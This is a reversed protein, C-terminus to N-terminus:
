FIDRCGFRNGPHCNRPRRGFERTSFRFKAM